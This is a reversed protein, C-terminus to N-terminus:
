CRGGGARTTRRGSADFETLKQQQIELGTVTAPGLVRVPATLFHFTIGEEHAAEIEEPYAPMHARTRRYVIHVESAGLRWATRAADVAVNAAPRSGTQGPYGHNGLAVERLFDIWIDRRRPRRGIGLHLGATAGIALVV